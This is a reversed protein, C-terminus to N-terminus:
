LASKSKEMIRRYKEKADYRLHCLQCGALLRDDSVDWNTEDHDLHMVTLVVKVLKIVPYPKKLVSEPWGSEEAVKLADDKNQYWDRRETHLLKVSWVLSYNDLGCMECKNDARKLIRARREEWDPPYKKMDTPM